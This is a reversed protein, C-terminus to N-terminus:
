FTLSPQHKSEQLINSRSMGFEIPSVQSLFHSVKETLNDNDEVVIWVLNEVSGVAQSLRTLEARQTPRTYTPTIVYIPGLPAPGRTNLIDIGAVDLGGFQFCVTDGFLSFYLTM